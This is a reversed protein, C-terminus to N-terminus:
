KEHALFEGYTKKLPEYKLLKYSGYCAIYEKDIGNVGLMFRNRNASPEFLSIVNMYYGGMQFCEIYNQVSARDMYLIKTIQPCLRKGYDRVFPSSTAIMVGDVFQLQIYDKLHCLAIYNFEDDDDPFVLFHHKWSLRYRRTIWRERIEAVIYRYLLHLFKSVEKM